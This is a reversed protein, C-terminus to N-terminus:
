ENSGKKLKIILDNLEEKKRIDNENKLENKLKDIQVEQIWKKIITLCEDFSESVDEDFSNIIRIIIDKYEFDNVYTLFDAINFAKNIKYFALIDNAILKYTKYPIYNIEKEYRKIFKENNMMIYLLMESAKYYKNLKVKVKPQFEIVEKPKEINNLKSELIIKDIGYDNCLKNITVSRLIEDNSKNLEDIVSNIYNALEDSKNLNKNKKLLNIKFDFFSIANNINDIFADKGNKIIYSDPDKEGNLRVVLVDIGANILYEGNSLTSKEGASDNDLCLIVTSNLRKLLGIHEKTLATGMTACVNKLGISYIRIADIQGEVLIVKKSKSCERKCKEYNYLINGKKFLINERSNIYKNSDESNFIRASFAVVDGKDNCIPFTIRNRFLDNLKDGKSGLSLDIVEKETYGKKILLKTLNNDNLSLGIGFEKIIDEDLHRDDILYKRAQFGLESGLNNIFYKNALDLMEYYKQHPKFVTSDYNLFYGIKDAVIKVSTPFDVNEFKSVFNFVNGSEGCVFCTYIQKEPSVSLSPNHDDHFPCVGFFNKGKPEINIYSSIIDVINARNRINNIDENPIIAM